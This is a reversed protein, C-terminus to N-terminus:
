SLPNSAETAERRPTTKTAFRVQRPADNKMIWHGVLQSAHRQAYMKVWHLEIVRHSMTKETQRQDHQMALPQKPTSEKAQPAHALAERTEEHLHEATIKAPTRPESKLPQTGPTQCRGEKHHQAEEHEKACRKAAWLRKV